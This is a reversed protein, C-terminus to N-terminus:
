PMPIYGFYGLGVAMGGPTYWTNDGGISPDFEGGAVMVDYLFKLEVTNNADPAWDQKLGVSFLMGGESDDETTTVWTDATITEKVKTDTLLRYYDAILYTEFEYKSGFAIGPMAKFNLTMGPTDTYEVSVDYSDGTTPYWTEDWSYKGEMSYRVALQGDLRFPCSEPRCAFLAAIDIALSKDGTLAKEDAQPDDFLDKAQDEITYAGVPIKIGLRPGLLFGGGLAFVGKGWIWPNALGTNTQKVTVANGEENSTTTESSPMYLPIVIGASFMENFSYGIKIPVWINNAKFDYNPDLPERKESDKNYLANDMGYELGGALYLGKVGSRAYDYANLPDLYTATALVPIVMLALFLIRKM